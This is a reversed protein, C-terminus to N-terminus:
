PFVVAIVPHLEFNNPAVGHQPTSHRQDFFGVGTIRVRVPSSLEKYRTPPTGLRTALAQRVDDFATRSDSLCVRRCDSSPVEAIITTAHNSESAIVIHIDKDAERIWGLIVGHVEYVAREVDGLRGNDPKEEPEELKRLQFPTRVVPTLDVEDADADTLTKVAWREVGCKVGCSTAIEAAGISQVSDAGPTARPPRVRHAFSISVWGTDGSTTAVHLYDNRLTDPRVLAVTDEPELLRLTGTNKTATARLRVVNEIVVQQARMPAASSGAIAALAIFRLSSFM